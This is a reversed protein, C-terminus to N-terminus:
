NPARLRFWLARRAGCRPCALRAVRLRDNGVTQAAHEDIVLEGECRLCRQSRAEPEVQSASDVELPREAAGGPELMALRERDRTLKATDRELQRRASRARQKKAAM